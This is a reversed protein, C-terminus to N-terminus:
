NAKHEEREREREESPGTGLWQNCLSRTERALASALIRESTPQTLVCFSEFNKNNNSDGRRASRPSFIGGGGGRQGDKMKKMSLVSVSQMFPRELQLPPPDGEDGHLAKIEGPARPARATWSQERGSAM